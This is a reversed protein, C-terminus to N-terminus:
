ECHPPQASANRARKDPAQCCFWCTGGVLSSWSSGKALRTTSQLPVEPEGRQCTPPAPAAFRSPYHPLLARRRAGRLMERVSGRRPKAKSVLRPPCHFHPMRAPSEPTGQRVPHGPTRAGDPRRRYRRTGGRRIARHARFQGAACPSTRTWPAPFPRADSGFPSPSNRVHEREVSAHVTPLSSPPALLVHLGLRGGSKM